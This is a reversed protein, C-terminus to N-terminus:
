ETSKMREGRQPGNHIIKVSSDENIREEEETDLRITLCM